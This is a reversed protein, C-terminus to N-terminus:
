CVLVYGLVDSTKRFLTEVRYETTPPRLLVFASGCVPDPMRTPQDRFDVEAKLVGKAIPASRM